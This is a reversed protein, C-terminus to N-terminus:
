FIYKISVKDVANVNAGNNIFLTAVETRGNRAAYHLPTKKDQFIYVVYTVCYLTIYTCVSYQYM